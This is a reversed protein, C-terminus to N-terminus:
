RHAELWREYEAALAAMRAEHEPDTRLGLRRHELLERFRDPVKEQPQREHNAM